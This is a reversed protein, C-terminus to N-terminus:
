QMPQYYGNHPNVYKFNQALYVDEEDSSPGYPYYKDAILVTIALLVLALYPLVRKM